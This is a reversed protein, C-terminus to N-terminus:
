AVIRKFGTRKRERICIFVNNPPWSRVQSALRNTRVLRVTNCPTHTHLPPPAIETLLPNKVDVIYPQNESEKTAPSEGSQGGGGGGGGAEGGMNWWGGVGMSVEGGLRWGRLERLYLGM